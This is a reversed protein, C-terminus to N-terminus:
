GAPSCRPMAALGAGGLADDLSSARRYDFAAPIM